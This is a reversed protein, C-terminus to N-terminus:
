EVVVPCLIDDKKMAYTVVDRKQEIIAYNPEENYFLPKLYHDELARYYDAEAKTGFSKDTDHYRKRQLEHYCHYCYWGDQHVASSAHILKARGRKGGCVQCSASIQSDSKRAKSGTGCKPCVGNVAELNCLLCKM